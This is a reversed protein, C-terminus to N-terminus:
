CSCSLPGPWKVVNGDSQTSGLDPFLPLYSIAASWSSAPRAPDPPLLSRLQHSSPKAQSGWPACDGGAQASSHFGVRQLVTVWWGPPCHVSRSSPLPMGETRWDQQSAQRTLLQSQFPLQASTGAAAVVVDFGERREGTAMLLTPLM